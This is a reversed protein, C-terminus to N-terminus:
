RPKAKRRRAARRKDTCATCYRVQALDSTAIRREKDCGRATCRITITRKGAHTGNASLNKLTGKVIHRYKKRLEREAADLEDRSLRKKKPRSVTATSM